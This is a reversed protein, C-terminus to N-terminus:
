ASIEANRKAAQASEHEGTARSPMYYFCVQVSQPSVAMEMRPHAKVMDALYLAMDFANDVYREYGVRGYYVWGLALKLADGRRDCQPTFEALDYTIDADETGPALTDEEHFLYGANISNASRFRGLDRGLLFSCTAPVSLM